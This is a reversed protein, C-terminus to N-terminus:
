CGVSSSGTPDLGWQSDYNEQETKALLRRQNTIETKLQDFLASTLVESDPAPKGKDDHESDSDEEVQEASVVSEVDDEVVGIENRYKASQHMELRSATRALHMQHATPAIVELSALALTKSSRVSEPLERIVAGAVMKKDVKNSLSAAAAALADGAAVSARRAANVAQKKARSMMSEAANVKLADATPAALKEFLADVPYNVFATAIAVMVAIYAM